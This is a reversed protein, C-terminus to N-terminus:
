SVCLMGLWLGLQVGFGLGSLVFASFFGPFGKYKVRGIAMIM